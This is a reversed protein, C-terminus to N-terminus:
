ELFRRIKGGFLESLEIYNYYMFFLPHPVLPNLDYAKKKKNKKLIIENSVLCLSLLCLSIPSGDKYVALFQKDDPGLIAIWSSNLSITQLMRALINYNLLTNM